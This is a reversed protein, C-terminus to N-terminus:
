IREYIWVVKDEYVKKWGDQELKQYLDENKKDKKGQLKEILALLTGDRKEETKKAELVVTRVNFKNFSEDYEAKDIIKIFDLFANKSESEPGSENTLPWVGYRWEPMRGDIYQKVGPMKWEMYGAWHYLTFINGEINNKKFFEVAGKPYYVDESLERKVVSGYVNIMAEMCFYFIFLGYILKLFINLRRKTEKDKSTFKKYFSELIESLLPVAALVFLPANRSSTLSMVFLGGILVLLWKTTSKFEYRVFTFVLAAIFFTAVEVHFYFPLWESINTKTTTDSLLKWVAYWLKWGYPNILTAGVGLILVLLDSLNIKKSEIYDVLIKVGLVGWALFFGGHLNAWVIMYIPFLWKWKQWMKKNLLWALLVAFLFWSEVQPRVGVRALLVPVALMSGLLGWVKRDKRVLMSLSGVVLLTYITAVGVQGTYRYGFYMLINSLWHFDIFEYSPMTYTLQDKLVIGNKSILEGIRMHWGFDPDLRASSVLFFVIGILVLFLTWWYKRLM